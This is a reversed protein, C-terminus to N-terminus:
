TLDHNPEEEIPPCGKRKNEKGKQTEREREKGSAWCSLAVECVLWSGHDQLPLSGQSEDLPRVM